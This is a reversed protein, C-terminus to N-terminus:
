TATSVGTVWDAYSYEVVKIAVSLPLGIKKRFGGPGCNSILMLASMVGDVAVDDGRVGVQRRLGVVDNPDRRPTM